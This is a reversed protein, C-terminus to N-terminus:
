MPRRLTRSWRSPERWVKEYDGNLLAVPWDSGCVLRDSGFADVAVAVAYRLDAAGWDRNTLVTNLGSIKAVVRPHAARRAGRPPGGVGHRRETATAECPSRQLIRM